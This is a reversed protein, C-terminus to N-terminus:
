SAKPPPQKVWTFIFTTGRLPPASEVRISGGHAEVTKKVIALGMGSGELEDRPRLTQFMAFIRAHFQAPVGPGDDEVRFEVAHGLDRVSVTINGTDRDHHKLGNGILNCLVQELPARASRFALPAGSTTVSFGPAPALYDTITAVLGAIDVDEAVDGSRGIRSYRLLSDLLLDLREVRSRVLALNEVTDASATGEIDEAIWDTLNRIGRLPAKLDHSASYAFSDLDDNSRRLESEVRERARNSFLLSDAMENFASAVEAVEDGSGIHVRRKLDGDALADIGSTLDGLSSEIRAITAAAVAVIILITLLAAGGVATMFEGTQKGATAKLEVLASNESAAIEAALHEFEVTYRRGRGERVIALAAAQHGSSSLQITLAVESLKGHLIQDLRALEVRETKDEILANLGEYRAESKALAQGYPALYAVQGTLLYGRQGTEAELIGRRYTGLARQLALSHEITADIKHSRELSWLALLGFVIVAACAAVTLQWIRGSISSVRVNGNSFM